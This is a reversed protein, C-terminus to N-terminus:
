PQQGANRKLVAKLKRLANMKLSYPSAHASGVISVETNSVPDLASVKVANGIVKVEFLVEGLEPDMEPNHSM